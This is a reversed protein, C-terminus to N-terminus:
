RAASVDGLVTAFTSLTRMTTTEFTLFRNDIWDYANTQIAVDICPRTDMTNDRPKPDRLRHRQNLAQASLTARSISKPDRLRHRQNLAQASLTLSVYVSVSVCVSLSVSVFVSVSVFLETCYQGPAHWYTDTETDTKCCRM